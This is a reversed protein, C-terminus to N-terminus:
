IKELYNQFHGLFNTTKKLRLDFKTSLCANGLFVIANTTSSTVYDQICLFPIRKRKEPYSKEFDSFVGM